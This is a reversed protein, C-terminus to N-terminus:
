LMTRVVELLRARGAPEDHLNHGAGALREFVVDPSAARLREEDARGAVRNPADLDAALVHTPVPLPADIDFGDGLHEPPPDILPDLVRADLHLQGHAWSRLADAAYREGAPVGFPTPASRLRETLAAEEVGREQLVPVRRRLLRFLDILPGSPPTTVPRALLLAPDELVLRAVLEPQQQAVAAATVGGLSHGVLLVPAGIDRLVAVVDAVYGDLDYGGPVRASDGHGRLDVRVVRRRAAVVPAVFPDWNRHSRTVGHVFVVAPDDAAGDVAAHM